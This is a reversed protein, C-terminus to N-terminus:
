LPIKKRPQTPADESEEVAPSANGAATQGYWAFRNPDVGKSQCYAVFEALQDVQTRWDPGCQQQFSARGSRLRADMTDEAKQPDIEFAAPWRVIYEAGPCIKDVVYDVVQRELMEQDEAFKAWSVSIEIQGSSYSNDARGRALCSMAGQRQGNLDALRDQWQQIQPSPRNANSLEHIGTGSDVWGIASKGEIVPGLSRPEGPEAAALLGEIDGEQLGAAQVLEPDISGDAGTLSALIGDGNDTAPRELILSTESYNKAAAVESKIHSRTDETLEANPLTTPEGRYQSIKTRCCVRRCLEAPLFTAQRISVAYQNRRHTVFYGIVRGDPDVVAGEIQRYIAADEDGRTPLGNEDGWKNFDSDTVSCIQDADWLRVKNGTLDPDVLIICDGHVKVARLIISLVEQWNENEQHGCSLAWANWARQNEGAGPGTFFPRGGRTGITLRVCTDIIAGLQDNDYAVDGMAYAQIRKDARFDQQTKTRDTRITQRRRLADTNLADYQNRVVRALRRVAKPAITDAKFLSLISKFM